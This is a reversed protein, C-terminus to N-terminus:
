RYAGERTAGAGAHRAAHKEECAGAHVPDMCLACEAGALPEGCEVCPTAPAAPEDAARARTAQETQEAIRARAARGLAAASLRARFLYLMQAVTVSLVVPLPVLWPPGGAFLVLAVALAAGGLGLALVLRRLDRGPPTPAPPVGPPGRRRATAHALRRELRAAEAVAHGRQTRASEVRLKERASERRAKELGGGRNRAM